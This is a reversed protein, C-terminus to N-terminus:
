FVPKLGPALESAGGAHVPMSVSSLVVINRLKTRIYGQPKTWEERRGSIRERFPAFALTWYCSLTGAFGQLFGRIDRGESGLGRPLILPIHGPM